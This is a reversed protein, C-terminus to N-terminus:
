LGQVKRDMEERLDRDAQALENHEMIDEVINGLKVKGDRQYSALIDTARIELLEEALSTFMTTMAMLKAYLYREYVVGDAKTIKSM